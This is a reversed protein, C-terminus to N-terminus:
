VQMQALWEQKAVRKEYWEREELHRRQAHERKRALHMDVLSLFEEKSCPANDDVRYGTLFENCSRCCTVCNDVHDVMKAFGQGWKKLVSMPIVHDVSISLWADYSTGMERDCYMCKMGHRKFVQLGYGKRCTM